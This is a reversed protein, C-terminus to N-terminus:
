EGIRQQAEGVPAGLRAFVHALHGFRADPDLGTERGGAPEFPDARRNGRQGAVGGLGAEGDGVHQGQQNVLDVQGVHTLARRPRSAALSVGVVFHAEAAVIALRHPDGTVPTRHVVRTAFHHHHPHRRLANLRALPGLHFQEFGHGLQTAGLAQALLIQCAALVLPHAQVRQEVYEIGANQKDVCVAPHLVHVGRHQADPLEVVLGRQLAHAIHAQEFGNERQDLVRRAVLRVRQADKAPASLRRRKFEGELVPADNAFHRRHNGTPAGPMREPPYPNEFVHGLRTTGRRRQHTQGLAIRQGVEVVAPAEVFRQVHRNGRCVPRVGLDPQHHEIEVTELGDVIREAVLGAVRDQDLDGGCHALHHPAVLQHEADTAVLERNQDGVGTM